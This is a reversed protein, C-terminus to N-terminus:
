LNGRAEQALEIAEFLAKFNGAGFGTAGARQVLRRPALPPAQRPHATWGEDAPRLPALGDALVRWGDALLPLVFAATEAADGTVLTARGTRVVTTGWALHHGRRVLSLPEGWGQRLAQDRRLDPGDALEVDVTGDPHVSVRGLDPLCGTWVPGSRDLWPTRDGHVPHHAPADM